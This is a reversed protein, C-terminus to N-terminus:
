GAATFSMKGTAPGALPVHWIEQRNRGLVHQGFGFPLLHAPALSSLARQLGAEGSETHAYGVSRGLADAVLALLMQRALCGPKDALQPCGALLFVIEGIQGGLGVHAGQGGGDFGPPDAFLRMLLQLLFEAEVMELPSRPATKM